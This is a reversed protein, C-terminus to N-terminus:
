DIDLLIGLYHWDWCFGTGMMTRLFSFWGTELHNKLIEVRKWLLVPPNWANFHGRIQLLILPNWVVFSGNELSLIRFYKNSWLSVFCICICVLPNFDKISGITYFWVRNHSIVLFKSYFCGKMKTEGIRLSGHFTQFFVGKGTFNLVITYM